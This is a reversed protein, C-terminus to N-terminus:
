ARREARTAATRRGFLAWWGAQLVLLSAWTGLWLVAPPVPLAIVRPSLITVGGAVLGAVLAWTSIPM